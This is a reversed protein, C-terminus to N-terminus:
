SPMELDVFLVDPPERDVVCGASALELSQGADGLQVFPPVGLVLVTAIVRCVGFGHADAELREGATCNTM